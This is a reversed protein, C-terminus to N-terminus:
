QYELVVSVAMRNFLTLFIMTNIIITIFTIQWLLLLITSIHLIHKQVPLLLIIFSYFFFDYKKWKNNKCCIPYHVM